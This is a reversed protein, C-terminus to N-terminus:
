NRARKRARIKRKKGNQENKWVNTTWSPSTMSMSLHKEGSLLMKSIMAEDFTKQTVGLMLDILTNSLSRMGLKGKLILGRCVYDNNDWKNRKRVQEVIPDDGGDEPIPTTLVYVVSMAAAAM